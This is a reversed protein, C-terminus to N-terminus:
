ADLTVWVRDWGTPAAGGGDESSILTSLLLTGSVGIFDEDHYSGSGSLLCKVETVERGRGWKGWLCKYSWQKGFIVLVTRIVEGLIEKTEKGLGPITIRSRSEEPSSDSSKGEEEAAEVWCISSERARRFWRLCGGVDGMGLDILASPTPSSSRSRICSTSKRGGIQLAGDGEKPGEEEAEAGYMGEGAEEEYSYRVAPLVVAPDVEVAAARSRAFSFGVGEVDVM